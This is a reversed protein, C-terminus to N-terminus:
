SLVHSRQMFYVWIGWCENLDATLISLGQYRVRTPFLIYQNAMPLQNTQSPQKGAKSGTTELLTLSEIALPM